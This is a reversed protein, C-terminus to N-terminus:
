DPRPLSMFYEMVGHFHIGSGSCGFRTLRTMLYVVALQGEEAEIERIDERSILDDLYWDMLAHAMVEFEMYEGNIKRGFPDYLVEVTHALDVPIETDIEEKFGLFVARYDDFLESIRKMFELQQEWVKGELYSFEPNSEAIQDLHYKLQKNFSRFFPHNATAYARQWLPNDQGYNQRVLGDSVEIKYVEVLGESGVLLRL